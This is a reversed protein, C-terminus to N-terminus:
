FRRTLQLMPQGDSALGMGFQLDPQYTASRLPRASGGLWLVDMWNYAYVAGALWFFRNSWRRRDSAGEFYFDFSSEPDDQTLADYKREWDNSSTRYAFGAVLSAVELGAIIRGKNAEGVRLQYLGPAVALRLPAELGQARYARREMRKQVTELREPDRMRMVPQLMPDVEDRLYVIQAVSMRPFVQRIQIAGVSKPTVALTDGTLPHALVESAVIDYLDGKQVGSSQGIDIYVLSSEVRIVMGDTAMQEAAEAVAPLALLLALLVAVAASWPATAVPGRSRNWYRM